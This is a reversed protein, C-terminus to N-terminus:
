IGLKAGIDNFWYFGALRVWLAFVALTGVSLV